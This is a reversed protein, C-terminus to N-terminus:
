PCSGSGQGLPVSPLQLKSIVGFKENAHAQVPQTSLLATQIHAFFRPQPSSSAPSLPVFFHSIKLFAPRLTCPLINRHRALSRRLKHRREGEDRCRRWCDEGRLGM